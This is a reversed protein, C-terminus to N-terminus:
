IYTRAHVREKPDLHPSANFLSLRLQGNEFTLRHLSANHINLMLDATERSGLGLVRRMTAGIVGGSTVVLVTSGPRTAADIAADVRAQFAAYAEGTGGLTGADWKTLVEPFVKLFSDRNHPTDVGTAAIYEQELPFYHFEDLRADEVIERAGMQGVIGDATERHRRLSGRLVQDFQMDHAQFYDGLWRAQQHGLDSLKDYDPAGFSAQGHRVLVLEGM